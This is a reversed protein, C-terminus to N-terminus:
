RLRAALSSAGSFDAAKANSKYSMFLNTTLLMGTAFVLVLTATALQDIRM